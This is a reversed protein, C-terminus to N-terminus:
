SNPMSMLLRRLAAMTRKDPAAKLAAGTGAAAIVGACIGKYMPIVAALGFIMSITSLEPDIVESTVVVVVAIV